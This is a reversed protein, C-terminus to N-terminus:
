NACGPNPASITSIQRAFARRWAPSSSRACARRWGACPGTSSRRKGAASTARRDRPRRHFDAAHCQGIQRLRKAIKDTIFQGNTFVQFYATRTRRSCISCSRTCSRSAASSASSRTETRRRTTSRATSRRSISRRESPRSMWGAARAACTAAISSRSTFSPRSTNAASSGGSSDDRGVAAGEGRFEVAFKGLLRPDTTRLIRLALAPFM